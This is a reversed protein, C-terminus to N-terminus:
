TDSPTPLFYKPAALQGRAQLVQQQGHLVLRDEESSEDSIHLLWNPVVRCAVDRTCRSSTFCICCRQLLGWCDQQAAPFPAAQLQM